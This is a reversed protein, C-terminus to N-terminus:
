IARYALTSSSRELHTEQFPSGSAQSGTAHARAFLSSRLDLVQISRGKSAYWDVLERVGNRATLLEFDTSGDPSDAVVLSGSDGLARLSFDILPRLVSAHTTLASTDPDSGNVHLVFNPKVVVRDGPRIVRELPNWDHRGVRDADLGMDAWCRLVCAYVDDRAIWSPEAVTDPGFPAAPYALESEIRIAADLLNERYGLTSPSLRWHSEVNAGSTHAPCPAVSQRAEDRNAPLASCRLTRSSSAPQRFRLARNNSANIAIV